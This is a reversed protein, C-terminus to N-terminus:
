GCIAAIGRGCKKVLRASAKAKLCPGRGTQRKEAAKAALRECKQARKRLARIRSEPRSKIGSLFDTRSGMHFGLDIPGLDPLGDTRTYADHLRLKKSPIPSWDVAESQSAQGAAVQRLRFDDDDHGSGGLVQDSGAPAVLLPEHELDLTGRAVTTTNYSSQNGNLLNWQGVFGSSSAEKLNLGIRENDVIVNHIVSVNRAPVVGEVRIGDRANAYVTNGLIAAGSAGDRASNGGGVDIGSNGNAYVLNNFLIVDNSDQVWIGRERNSFIVCNAVVSNDSASKIAIGERFANMISFGDIVIWPRASIDFAHDCCSADILVQGPQDGTQLGSTDAIFRVLETRRGNGDPKIDGERYTGPGVVVTDSGRTDAAAKAITAFATGPTRGDNSDSGTSRVYFTTAHAPHHVPAAIMLVAGVAIIALQGPNM